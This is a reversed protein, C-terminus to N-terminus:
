EEAQDSYTLLNYSLKQVSFNAYPNHQTFFNDQLLKDGFTEFEGYQYTFSSPVKKYQVNDKEDVFMVNKFGNVTDVLKFYEKRATFNGHEDYINAFYRGNEVEFDNETKLLLYKKAVIFGRFDNGHANLVVPTYPMYFIGDFEANLNIIVPQSDRIYPTEDDDYPVGNVYKVGNADYYVKQAAAAASKEKCSRREAATLNPNTVNTEPGNYYVVLPRYTPDDDEDCVNPVNFNLIIQRVTNLTSQNQFGLKSWMPESEIRTGLPDPYTQNPRTRFAEDFSFQSHTRTTISGGYGALKIKSLEATNTPYGIDWDETLYSVGSKLTFAFDQTFDINISELQEWTYIKGGNAPTGFASGKTGDMITLNEEVVSPREKRKKHNAYEAGQAATNNIKKNKTRYHNWNGNFLKEKGYIAAYNNKWNNNGVNKFYYNQVEWNGVIVTSTEKDKMQDDFDDGPDPPTVPAVIGKGSIRTVAVVHLNMDGFNREMIGFLHKVQGKLEVVYYIPQLEPTEKTLFESFNEANVYAYNQFFDDAKFDAYNFNIDAYNEATETVAAANNNFTPISNTRSLNEPRKNVFEVSLSGPDTYSNTIQNAGALVAADAANQLRSQNFFWWGFEMAAGVFILLTPIFFAYLALVQGRQRFKKLM